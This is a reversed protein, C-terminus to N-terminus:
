NGLAEQESGGGGGASASPMAGGLRRVTEVFPYLNVAVLDIPQIGQRELERMHDPSDRRALLPGHVAPPPTKARGDLIEPFGTLESVSCVPVGAADLAKHTGGTSYLEAGLETLGRAFDVLGTKDYVSLIARM